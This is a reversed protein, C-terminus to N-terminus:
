QTTLEAVGWKKLIADIEGNDRMDKLATNVADLLPKQEKQVAMGVRWANSPKYAPVMAIGPIGKSKVQYVISPPDVIGLDIRGARIDALLTPYDSYTSVKSDPIDKAMRFQVSDALTGIKAGKMDDIKTYSAANKDAVAVGEGWGYVPTSFDIVKAREETVFLASAMLDARDSTLTPILGPFPVDVFQPTVGMRKAVGQAVEVMIGKYTRDVPDKFGHPPGSSTTVIVITKTKQVEDLSRASAFTGSLTLLVTLLATVLSSPKM